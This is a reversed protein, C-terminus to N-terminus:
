AVGIFLILRHDENPPKILSEVNRNENSKPIIL